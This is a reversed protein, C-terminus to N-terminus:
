SRELSYRVFDVPYLPPGMRSEDVVRM